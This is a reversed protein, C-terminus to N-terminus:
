PEKVITVKATAPKEWGVKKLFKHWLNSEKVRKRSEAFDRGEQQIITMIKAQKEEVVAPASKLVEEGSSAKYIIIGPQPSEM